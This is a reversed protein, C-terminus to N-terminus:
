TAISWVTYAAWAFLLGTLFALTIVTTGALIGVYVSLWFRCADGLSDFM